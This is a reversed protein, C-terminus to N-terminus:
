TGLLSVIRALELLWTRHVELTPTPLVINSPLVKKGSFQLSVKM